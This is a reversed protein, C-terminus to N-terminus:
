AVHVSNIWQRIAALLVFGLFSAATHDYPTAVRRSNKIRNRRAYLARDISHPVLHNNKTPIEPTGGRSRVHDRSVDSDYGRDAMLDAYVTSDHAESPMLQVAVPLGEANTRLHIKTSVGGRSRGLAQSQTGGQAPPATTRGSSTSHGRAWRRDGIMQRADDGGGEALAQLM